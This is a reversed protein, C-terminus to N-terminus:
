RLIIGSITFSTDTLVEEPSVDGLRQNCFLFQLATVRYVPSGRYLGVKQRGTIVAM